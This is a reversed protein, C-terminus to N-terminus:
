IDLSLSLDCDFFDISEAIRAAIIVTTPPIKIASMGVNNFM